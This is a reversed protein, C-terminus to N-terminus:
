KKWDELIHVAGTAIAIGTDQKTKENWKVLGSVHEPTLSQVSLPQTTTTFQAFDIRELFSTLWPALEQQVSIICLNPIRRKATLLAFMEAFSKVLEPEARALSEKLAACAPTSCYDKDLMKLMSLTEEPLGTTPSIRKLISMTGEPITAEQSMAERLIVAATTTFGNVDIIIYRYHEPFHEHAVTLFSKMGAMLHPTRGPLHKGLIELVRQKAEPVVDSEYAVVSLSTGPTGIPNATPYGSVYVQLVGAELISARDLSSQQALANQAVTAIMAKTISRPKEFREEVSAIRAHTWPAHLFVHVSKPPGASKVADSANYNKLVSELCESFLSTIPVPSKEGGSQDPSLSRRESVLVQAPKSDSFAVLAVGVSGDEIDAICAVSSGRHGLM